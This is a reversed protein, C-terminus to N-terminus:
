ETDLQVNYEEALNLFKEDAKKGLEIAKKLQENAKNVLEKAKQEGIGEGMKKVADFKMNMGKEWKEFQNLRMRHLEKVVDTKPDQSKLYEAIDKVIPMAKEKQMQYAAKPNAEQLSQKIIKDLEEGKDNVNKLYSNHYEVIEKAQESACAALLMVISLGILFLVKKGKM